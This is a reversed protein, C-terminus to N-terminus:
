DVSVFISGCQVCCIHLLPHRSVHLIFLCSTSTLIPAPPPRPSFHMIIIGLSRTTHHPCTVEQTLINNSSQSQSPTPPVWLEHRPWTSILTWSKQDWNHDIDDVIPTNYSQFLPQMFLGLTGVVCVFVFIWLFLRDIVMAVYKWDEIIQLSM